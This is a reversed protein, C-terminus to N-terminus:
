SKRNVLMDALFQMTWGKEGLPEIARSAQALLKDAKKQSAELGILSPYTLKGAQADKGITKGLAAQSSTVDLLDDVIQFALGIKLGFEGLEDITLQDAGACIAGMRMAGKFMAATKHIHIYDVSEIDGPKNESELDAVQGGIMGYAGSAATLELVLDRVKEAPSFKAVAEFAHTLLADGALIALGDGYVKHNSPQGRRFDDDDMAPLDDHVLSYTHIMEIAAGAALSDSENGNCAECAMVVMAPRLRKGGARLSYLMSERLTEPMQLKALFEELFQDISVAIQKFRANFENKKSFNM